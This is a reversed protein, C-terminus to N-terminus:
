KKALQTTHIHAYVSLPLKLTAMVQYKYRITYADHTHM